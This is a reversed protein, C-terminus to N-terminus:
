APWIPLSLYFTSGKGLTSQCSVSGGHAEAIHKVISLGLGTGGLERSRAKDVRYFREFIRSIDDQPIGIGTDEVSVKVEAGSASAHIILRGGDRNFKIGNDILNALARRLQDQDAKVKPFPKEPIKNEVRIKKKEVQSHFSRLVEEAEKRLDLAELKLTAGRSEIKSLELLDDILRELRNTDEGMMQLFSEGKTQDRVAGARLTEIFGKISTLPTKLEHSVNAVFDRRMTELRRVETVDQFVVIGLPSKPNRVVGIASVKLIRTRPYGFEIEETVVAKEHLARDVMNSVDTQRLIEILSKRLADKKSVGLIREAMPNIMLVRKSSDVAVVGETMNELIASAEAKESEIETDKDKLSSAMRNIANALLKLEDRPGVSIRHRLDGQAYREAAEVLKRVRKTVSREMLFGFVLVIALGTAGGLLIPKQFSLFVDRITHLPLSVRIAGLVSEGEKISFALYLMDKGLTTSYRISSGVRGALAERFEPRAHHNEMALVQDWTEESDGLVKGEKDIVTVRARIDRGLGQVLEQFDQGKREKLLAPTIIHSLLNADVELSERVRAFSRKKLEYAAYWGTLVLVASFVLVFSFILRKGFSRSFPM